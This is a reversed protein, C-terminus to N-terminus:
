LATSWQAKTHSGPLYENMQKENDPHWESALEPFKVELNNHPCIYIGARIHTGQGCKKGDCDM